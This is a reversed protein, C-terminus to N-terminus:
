GDSQFLSGSRTSKQMVFPIMWFKAIASNHKSREDSWEGTIMVSVV